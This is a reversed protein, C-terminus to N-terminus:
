RTVLVSVPGTFTSPPLLEKGEPSPITRVERYNELLAQRVGADGTLRAVFDEVMALNDMRRAVIHPVPELGEKRLRGALAVTDLLNTGPVHAIYLCTGAPILDSFKEVREAERVTTEISYGKVLNQISVKNM